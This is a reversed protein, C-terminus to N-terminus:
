HLHIYKKVMESSDDANVALLLALLIMPYRSFYENVGTNNTKDNALSTRIQLSNLLLVIYLNSNLFAAFFKSVSPSNCYLTTRLLFDFFSKEFNIEVSDVNRDAILLDLM